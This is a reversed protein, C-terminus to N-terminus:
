PYSDFLIEPASFYLPQFLFKLFESSPRWLLNSCTSLTFFRHVQLSTLQLPRTQFVSSICSSVHVSGQPVHPVCM